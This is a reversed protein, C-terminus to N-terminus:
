KLYAKRMAEVMKSIETRWVNAVQITGFKGLRNIVTMVVAEGFGNFHDKELKYKSHSKAFRKYDEASAGKVIKGVFARIMHSILRFNEPFRGELDPCYKMFNEHFEEHFDRAFCVPAKYVYHNQGDGSRPTVAPSTAHSVTKTPGESVAKSPEESVAKSPAESVTKSVNGCVALDSNSRKAESDRPHPSPLINETRTSLSVEIHPAPVKLRQIMGDDDLCLAATGGFQIKTRTKIEGTM